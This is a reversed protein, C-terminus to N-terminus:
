EVLLAPPQRESLSGLAFVGGTYCTFGMVRHVPPTKMKDSIYSEAHAVKQQLRENRKVYFIRRGVFFFVALKIGENNEIFLVAGCSKVNRM